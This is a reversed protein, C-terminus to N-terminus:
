HHRDGISMRPGFHLTEIEEDASPLHCRGFRLSKLEAALGILRAPPRNRTRM